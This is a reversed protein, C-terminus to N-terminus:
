QTSKTLVDSGEIEIPCKGLDTVKVDHGFAKVTAQGIWQDQGAVQKVRFRYFLQTGNTYSTEIAALYADSPVYLANVTGKWGRLGPLNRKWGSAAMSTSDVSATDRDLKFDVLEALDNYTTGGDTSVALHANFGIIAASQAM